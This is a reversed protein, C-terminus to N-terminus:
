PTPSLHNRAEINQYLANILREQSDIVRWLLPVEAAPHERSHTNQERVGPEDKAILDGVARECDLCIPYSPNASDVWKWLTKACRKCHAVKPLERTTAKVFDQELQTIANRLDENARAYFKQRECIIHM